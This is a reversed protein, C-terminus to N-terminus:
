KTQNIRYRANNIREQFRPVGSEQMRKLLYLSQEDGNYEGALCLWYIASDIDHAKFFYYHGLSYQADVVGNKALDILDDREKREKINLFLIVAVVAIVIFIIVGM